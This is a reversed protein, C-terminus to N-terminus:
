IWTMSIEDEGSSSALAVGSLSVRSMGEEPIEVGVPDIECTDMDIRVIDGATDGLTIRLDKQIKRFFESHLHTEDKKVILDLSFTVERMGAMVVDTPNSDGFEENLLDHGTTVSVSGSVVKTTTSGGDLSVSGVTGYLPSGTLTATPLFPAVADDDSWTHTAEITATETSHVVATVQHGAGSNDDSGIKVISYLGLFDLDDVVLAAVTSGAGNAATHGTRTFGKGVGNIDITAYGSGSWSITFDTAVAGYVVEHIDSTERYITGFDGSNDKGLTYVVSTSANVTETGFVMALLDGIDPAVGLSGSPRVLCSMGWTASTKGETREQRSRTNKRDSPIARNVVPAMSISSARFGTSATPKVAVGYTSELQVFGVLDHGYQFNDVSM